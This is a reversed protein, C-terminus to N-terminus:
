RRSGESEPDVSLHEHVALWRGDDDRHFVMTERERREDDEGAVQTRVRHTFVAADGGILTAHPDLSRCDEVRFGDQEWVSWIRQYDALTAILEPADYFLFTADAAFSAFYRDTDHSGFAAVLDAAATLVEALVESQQSTVASM